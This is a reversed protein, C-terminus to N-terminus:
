GEKVRSSELSIHNDNNSKVLKFYESGYILLLNYIKYEKWM